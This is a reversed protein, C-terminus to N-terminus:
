IKISLGVGFTEIEEINSKWQSYYSINLNVKESLSFTSGFGGGKTLLTFNLMDLGLRIGVDINQNYEGIQAVTVVSAKYFDLKVFDYEAFAVLSPTIESVVREDPAEFISVDDYTTKTQGALSAGFELQAQAYTTILLAVTYLLKKMIKFKKM